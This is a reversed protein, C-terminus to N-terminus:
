LLVARLCVLCTAHLAYARVRLVPLWKILHPVCCVHLSRDRTLLASSVFAEAPSTGKSQLDM